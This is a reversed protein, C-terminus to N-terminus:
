KDKANIVMLATIFFGFCGGIIFGILFTIM